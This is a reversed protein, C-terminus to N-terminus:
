PNKILLLFVKLLERPIVHNWFRCFGDAWRISRQLFEVDDCCILGQLKVRISRIYDLHIKVPLKQYGVRGALDKHQLPVFRTYGRASLGHGQGQM